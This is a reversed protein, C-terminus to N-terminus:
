LVYDRLREEDIVVIRRNGILDIIGEDQFKKLKLTLFLLADLLPLLLEIGV